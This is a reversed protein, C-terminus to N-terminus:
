LVVHYSQTTLAWTKSPLAKQLRMRQLIRLSHDIREASINQDGRRVVSQGREVASGGDDMMAQEGQNSDYCPADGPTPPGIAITAKHTNIAVRQRVRALNRESHITHPHQHGLQQRQGILARRLLSEAEECLGQQYKAIALNHLTCLTDPHQHGLRDQQGELAQVYLYVADEWRGQILRVNALDHLTCLTDPHQHNIQRRGKLAEEFLSEAENWRGRKCMVIALNHISRLTDPHNQPLCERQAKLVQSFLVEADERGQEYRLCALSHKLFLTVENTPGYKQYSFEVIESYMSEALDLRRFYYQLTAFNHVFCLDTEEGQQKMSVYYEQGVTLYWRRVTKIVVDNVHNYGKDNMKGVIMRRAQADHSVATQCDIDALIIRIHEHSKALSSLYKDREVEPMLIDFAVGAEAANYVEWLVWVQRLTHMVDDWRELLLV